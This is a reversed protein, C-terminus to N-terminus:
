SGGARPAGTPPSASRAAGLGAAAAAHAGHHLHSVRRSRGGGPDGSRVSPRRETRVRARGGASKGGLYPVASSAGARASGGPRPSPAGPSARQHQFMGAAVESHQYAIACFALSLRPFRASSLLSKGAARPQASTHLQGGWPSNKFGEKFQTSWVYNQM